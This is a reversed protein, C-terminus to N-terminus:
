EYDCLRTHKNPVFLLHTIIIINVVVIENYFFSMQNLDVSVIMPVRITIEIPTFILWYELECFMNKVKRHSNVHTWTHHRRCFQNEGNPYYRLTVYSTLVGEQPSKYLSKNKYYYYIFHVHCCAIDATDMRASWRHVELITIPLVSPSM